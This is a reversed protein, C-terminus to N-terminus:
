RCGCSKRVKTEGKRNTIIKEKESTYIIQWILHGKRYKTRKKFLGEETFDVWLGHRKGEKYKRISKIQDNSYYRRCEVVEASTSDCNQSYSFVPSLLFVSGLILLKKVLVANFWDM